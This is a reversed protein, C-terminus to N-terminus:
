LKAIGSWTFAININTSAKVCRPTGDPAPRNPANRFATTVCPALGALWQRTLAPNDIRYLLYAAQDLRPYASLILGQMDTWEPLLRTGPVVECATPEYPKCPEPM